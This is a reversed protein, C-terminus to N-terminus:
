REAGVFAGAAISVALAAVMAGIPILVFAIWIIAIVTPFVARVTQHKV